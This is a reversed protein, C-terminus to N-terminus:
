DDSSLWYGGEKGVRREESRVVDDFPILPNNYRRVLQGAADYQVDVISWSGPSGGLATNFAYGVVFGGGTLGIVAPASANIEIFGPSPETDIESGIPDGAADFLQTTVGFGNLSRDSWTIVYGGGALSAVAPNRQDGFTTTNVRHEPGTTLAM